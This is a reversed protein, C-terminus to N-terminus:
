EFIISFPSKERTSPRDQFYEDRLLQASSPRLSYDENLLKVLFKKSENSFHEPFRLKNCINQLHQKRDKDAKFPFAGALLTYLIVGIAWIDPATGLHETKSLIEPAMYSPTGCYVNCIMTERFKMAFGFDILKVNGREDLLVNELKIDKHAINMGHLYDVASILQYIIRKAEPEALRRNYRQKLYTFLSCGKIHEIMLHIYHETEKSDYLKVIYPHELKKMIAIERLVRTVQHPKKLRARDYTKIALSTNTPIHLAENVKAYAGHGLSEGLVFDKLGETSTLENRHAQLFSSSNNMTQLLKNENSKVPLRPTFVRKTLVSRTTPSPMLLSYKSLSKKVPTKTELPSQLRM